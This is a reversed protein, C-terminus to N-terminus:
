PCGGPPDIRTYTAQGILTIGWGDIQTLNHNHAIHYYEGCENQNDSGVPRPEQSGLYPSGWYPGFTLNQDQPLDVATEIPKTNPNWGEADSWIFTADWTQGPGVPISFQESALSEGGPGALARGDRGIIRSHNGHPHFPYDEAGVNLYRVLAPLPNGASYPEIHALAGYPQEPLWSAHNPAITDPFGRGNILWYRAHYNVMNFTIASNNAVSREVAQHLVPDIESLLMLYEHAPSFQTDARSYAWDPHGAPRVILAGFLGMQVQLSPESGSEYIYTGPENAVFSYTVSGGNAAAPNTLATLAGTGDFQPQAPAGNALVNEQGPFIISTARPLSNHLIVTVTDGQNVCLVPGPHQFAGGGLAYSWMYVTNGDPIGIHGDTATLTFTPNAGAGTTCVVGSQDPTMAHAAPAAGRPLGGLLALALVLAAAWGARRFFLTHM